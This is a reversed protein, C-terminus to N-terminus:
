FSGSQLLPDTLWGSRLLPVTLSLFLGKGIWPFADTLPSLLPTLLLVVLLGFVCRIGLSRGRKGILCSGFSKGM